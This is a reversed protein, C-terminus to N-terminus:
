LYDELPKDLSIMRRYYPKVSGDLRQSFDEGRAYIKGDSGRSITLIPKDPRHPGLFQVKEGVKLPPDFERLNKLCM